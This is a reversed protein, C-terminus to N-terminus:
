GWKSSNNNDNGVWRNEQPGSRTNVNDINHRTTGGNTMGVYPTNISVVTPPDIIPEQNITQRNPMSDDVNAKRTVTLTSSGGGSM